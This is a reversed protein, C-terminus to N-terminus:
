SFLSSKIKDTKLGQSKGNHLNNPFFRKMQRTFFSDQSFHKKVQLCKRFRNLFPFRKSWKNIFNLLSRRFGKSINYIMVAINTAILLCTACILGWGIFYKLHPDEIYDTFLILSYSIMLVSLENM